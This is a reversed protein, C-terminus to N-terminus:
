CLPRTPVAKRPTRSSRVFNLQLNRYVPDTRRKLGTQAFLLRCKALAAHWLVTDCALRTANLESEYSAHDSQSWTTAGQYEKQFSTSGITALVKARDSTIDQMIDLKKGLAVIAYQSTGVQEAKFLKELADRVYVFSSFSTHWLDLCIFYFHSEAPSHSSDKPEMQNPERVPRDVAPVDAREGTFATIKQEIGDEFIQFDAQTLGTLHHGDGDTVVVPVLVQRVYVRIRDGTAPSAPERGATELNARVKANEPEL